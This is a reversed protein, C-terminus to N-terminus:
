KMWKRRWPVTYCNPEESLGVGYKKPTMWPQSPVTGLFDFKSADWLTKHPLLSYWIMKVLPSILPLIFQGFDCHTM